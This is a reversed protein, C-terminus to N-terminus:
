LANRILPQLGLEARKQAPFAPDTYDFCSAWPLAECAQQAAAFAGPSFQASLWYHTAPENGTPSGMPVFSEAAQEPTQEFPSMQLMSWAEALHATEIIVLARIM